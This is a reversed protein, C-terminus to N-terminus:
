KSTAEERKERKCAELVEAQANLTQNASFSSTPLKEITPASIKKSLITPNRM